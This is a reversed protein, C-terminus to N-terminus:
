RLVPHVARRAGACCAGAAARGVASGRPQIEVIKLDHGEAACRRCPGGQGPQVEGDGARGLSARQQCAAGRAFHRTNDLLTDRSRDVGVLLGIEVRTVRAVPELRDPASTGSSPRAGRRFGPRAAARAGDAGAGRRDPGARDDTMGQDRGGRRRRGAGRGVLGEARLEAERKKEIRRILFISMEYLPYIAAFLILQSMVDPPTVIAAVILILSSRMGGCRRGARRSILARGQGDADAAGAAPLVPRLGRHAEITLTWTSRRDLGPLRDGATAGALATVARGGSQRTAM